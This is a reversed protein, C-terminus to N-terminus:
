YNIKLYKSIEAYPITFEIIGDAFSTLEYNNYLFIVGDDNFGINEPLRFDDGFFYEVSVGSSRTSLEEDFYQKVLKTLDGFTNILDDQTLLEGTKPDFNLLTIASNGHAGGTFTYNDVAISIVYKSQFVVESNIQVEWPAAEPEFDNRFSVFRNEFQSIANNLTLGDTDEEFFAIQSALASEIGKNINFSAESEDDLQPYIITISTPEQKEIAIEDFEFQSEEVCSLSILLLSLLVLKKM